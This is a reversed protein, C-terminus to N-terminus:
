AKKAEVEIMGMAVHLNGEEDLPVKEIYKTSIVEIFQERKRTTSTRYLTDLNDSDM